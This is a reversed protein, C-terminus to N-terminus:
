LRFSSNKTLRLYEETLLRRLAPGAGPEPCVELRRCRDIARKLDQIFAVCAPCGEIHQQMRECSDAAMEGDLYESLNGFIERCQESRVVSAKKRTGARGAPRNHGGMAQRLLLRARHLRVRVTGPQISLIKAVLETDLEEMDHLVLVIRYQPPLSLIAEHLMRHDQRGLAEREPNAAPDALLLTNIEAEDPMLEELSVAKRYTARRRGQWCRNKAATYLWASLARPDGLKALYPLAHFLVEQATDEADERQGCLKIGFSLVTGQLLALAQEVNEAEGKRLLGIARELDSRVRLGNGTGTERARKEHLYVEM